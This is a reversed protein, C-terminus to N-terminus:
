DSRERAMLLREPPDRRFECRFLRPPRLGFAQELSSGEARAMLWAARRTEGLGVGFCAGAASCVWKDWFCLGFVSVGLCACLDLSLRPCLLSRIKKARRFVVLLADVWWFWFQCFVRVFCDQNGRRFLRPPRLGFAQELSSGEARAM